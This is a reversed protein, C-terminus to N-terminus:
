CAHGVQCIKVSRDPRGRGGGDPTRQLLSDWTHSLMYAGEDRNITNRARRRIEIAERIWRKYKNNETGIIQAHEWDM